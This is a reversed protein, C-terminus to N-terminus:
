WSVGRTIMSMADGDVLVSYDSHNHMDTFGPAVVLAQADITRAGTKALLKGM